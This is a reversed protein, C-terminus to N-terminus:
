SHTMTLSLQLADGHRTLAENVAGRGPSAEHHTALVHLRGAKRDAKLDCRAVLRDGALVPMCYYGYKRQHAPKFIELVQDFDFLLKVRARDWLVPDFPSLLIGTDTRPRIRELRAALELDEPRIWGPREDLTCVVVRHESRLQELCAKILPRRKTLRWTDILTKESAWGHGELAKLLLRKVADREGITQKRLTEPIVRETLDYYPQFAKRERVALDGAWWLGRLLRKSLTSGWDNRDSRDQFDAVRLPGEDRIRRRIARAKARHEQLERGWWPSQRRYEKRRFAFVPYLKMPIWSLEHGWYEFVQARPRLLSEPLEPDLDPLRSLLVLAHSRAGAIPITDLQLYGFREIVSYCARRPQRSARLPFKTWEPKLLGARALALRRAQLISISETVM